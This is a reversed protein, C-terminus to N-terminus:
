AVESLRQSVLRYRPNKKYIDQYIKLADIKRGMSRFCEARLYSFCIHGDENLHETVLIEQSVEQAQSYKGMGMLCIIKYYMFDIRSLPLEKSYTSLMWDGVDEFGFEILSVILDEGNEEIENIPMLAITKRLVRKASDDSESIPKIKSFKQIEDQLKESIEQASARKQLLKSGNGANVKENYEVVKIHDPDLSSLENYLRSVKDSQNNKELLNIEFVLQRIRAKNKNLGFMEESLLDAGYDAESTLNLQGDYSEKELRIANCLDGFKSKHGSYLKLFYEALKKRRFKQSYLGLYPVAISLDGGALVFEFILTVFSKANTYNKPSNEIEMKLVIEILNIWKKIWHRNWYQNGQVALSLKQIKVLSQKQHHSLHSLSFNESLYDSVGEETGTSLSAITLSLDWDLIKERNKQVTGIFTKLRGISKKQILYDIYEEATQDSNSILGVNYYCSWVQELHTKYKKENENLACLYESLANEYDEKAYYQQAFLIRYDLYLNKTKLLKRIEFFMKLSQILQDSNLQNSDICEKFLLFAEEYKNKSYHDIASELDAM